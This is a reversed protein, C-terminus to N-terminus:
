HQQTLDMLQSSMQSESLGLCHYNTNISIDDILAQYCNMSDIESKVEHYIRTCEQRADTRPSADPVSPHFREPVRGRGLGDAASQLLGDPPPGDPALQHRPRR